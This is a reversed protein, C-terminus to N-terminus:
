EVGWLKMYEGQYDADGFWKSQDAELDLAQVNDETFVRLPIEENAVPKADNM